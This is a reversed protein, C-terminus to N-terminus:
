QLPGTYSVSRLVAFATDNLRNDQSCVSREFKLAISSLGVPLYAYECADVEPGSVIVYNYRNVVSQRITFGSGKFGSKLMLENLQNIMTDSDASLGFVQGVEIMPSGGADLITTRDGAQKSSWAAPITLRVGLDPTDVQQSTEQAVPQMTPAPAATGALRGPLLGTPTEFTPIGSLGPTPSAVPTAPGCAALFLLAALPILRAFRM